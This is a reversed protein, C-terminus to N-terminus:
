PTGGRLTLKRARRVRPVGFRVPAFSLAHALHSLALHSLALHSMGFRVPALSLAIGTWACIAEIWCPGRAVFVHAGHTCRLAACACAFVCACLGRVLLLIWVCEVSECVCLARVRFVGASAGSVRGRIRRARVRARARNRRRTRRCGCGSSATPMLRPKAALRRRTRRQRAARRMPRHTARRPARARGGPLALRVRVQGHHRRECRRHAARVDRGRPQLHSRCAAGVVQRVAGSRVGGAHNAAPWRWRREASPRPTIV